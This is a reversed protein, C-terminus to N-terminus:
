VVFCVLLSSRTGRELFFDMTTFLVIVSQAQMGDMLSVRQRESRECLVVAAHLRRVCRPRVRREGVNPVRHVWDVVHGHM